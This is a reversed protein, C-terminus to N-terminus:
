EALDHEGEGVTSAGVVVGHHVHDVDHHGRGVVNLLPDGYVDTGVHSTDLVLHVGEGAVVGGVDEHVGVVVLEDGGNVVDHGVSAVGVDLDAGRVKERRGRVDKLVDRRATGTAATEAHASVADGGGLAVVEVGASGLGEDVSGSSAELAAGLGDGLGAGDGVLAM